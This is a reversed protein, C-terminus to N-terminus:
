VLRGSSECSQSCYVMDGHSTWGCVSGLREGKPCGAAMICVRMARVFIVGLFAANCHTHYNTACALTKSGFNALPPM